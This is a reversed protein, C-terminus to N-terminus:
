PLVSAIAPALVGALRESGAPTLHDNDIFMAGPMARDLDLVRGSVSRFASLEYRVNREYAPDDIYEHLLTHNTPTAFVVVPIRERELLAASRGLYHFAVNATDVPTLDYTALFRDATPVHAARTRETVGTLNQLFATLASTADPAGFLASRLDVRWRYLRWARDAVTEIRGNLDRGPPLALLRRDDADLADATARALAPHLTRYASDAPNFVKPNLDLVVCAPKVGRAILYRLLVDANAPSGGEYSLNLVPRPAFRRALIAPV